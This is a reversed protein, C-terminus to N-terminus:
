SGPRLEGAPSCEGARRLPDALSKRGQGAPLAVGPLSRSELDGSWRAPGDCRAAYRPLRAQSTPEVGRPRAPAAFARSGRMAPASLSRQRTDAYRSPTEVPSPVARRGADPETEQTRVLIPIDRQTRTSKSTTQQSLRDEAIPSVEMAEVAPLPPTGNARREGPTAAVIHCREHHRAGPASRTPLDGRPPVPPRPAAHATM